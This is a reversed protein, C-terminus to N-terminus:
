FKFLLDLQLTNEDVGDGNVTDLYCIGAQWNKAIQYKGKIQHGYSGTDGDAFDSDNFIDPVADKGTDRWNYALEWSGPKKAKGLKAGVLYAEDDDTAADTNVVYQGHLKLPVGAIKIAASGFGEVLNFDGNPTNFSTATALNRVDAHRFYYDSVGAQLKVGDLKAEVALQGSYLNLDDGKDDDLVFTGVSSILKVPAFNTSTNYAVAAGEPNTDGDWILGTGKIWPKPMKGVLVHAGGLCDPHIDAYMLDVWVDDINFNDDMSENTSTAGEKDGTALRIGFDVSDNVKGYAGIRARLRQRDKSTDGDTTRNEYRARLDGKIKMMTVWAPVEPAGAKQTGELNEVKAALENVQQKLAAVDDAAMANLAAVM